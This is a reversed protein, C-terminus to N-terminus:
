WWWKPLVGGNYVVWQGVVVIVVVTERSPSSPKKNRCPLLQRWTVVLWFFPGLSTSDRAEFTHKKNRMM